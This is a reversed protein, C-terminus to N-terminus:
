SLNRITLNALTPWFRFDLAWGLGYQSHLKQFITHVKHHHHHDVQDGESPSFYGSKESLKQIVASNESDEKVKLFICVFDKFIWFVLM